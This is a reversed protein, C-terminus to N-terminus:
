FTYHDYAENEKLCSKKFCILMIRKKPPPRTYLDEYLIVALHSSSLSMPCSDQADTLVLM